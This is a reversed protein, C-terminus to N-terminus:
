RNVYWHGSYFQYRPGTAVWHAESCGWGPRVVEYRGPAWYHVAGDM